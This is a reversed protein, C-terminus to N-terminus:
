VEKYDEDDEVYASGCSIPCNFDVEKCGACSKCTDEIEKTCKPCLPDDYDGTDAIQGGGACEQSLGRWGCSCKVPYSKKLQEATYKLIEAMRDGLVKTQHILLLVM